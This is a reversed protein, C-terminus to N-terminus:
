AVQRWWEITRNALDDVASAEIIEIGSKSLRDLQRYTADHLRSFERSALGSEKDPVLVSLATKKRPSNSAVLLLDSSAQLLNNEVVLPSKYWASVVAGAATNGLLPVDVEIRHGSEMQLEYRGKQIIRSADLRMKEQMIEFVTTRVKPTSRYRFEVSTQKAHPRGLTVVDAYFEDVVAEASEGSAFLAPGLRITDSLEGPLEAGVELITAEIDHLLHALDNHDIRKDYLCKIRDFTDLMRVEVKGDGFSFMVGVNLFEGADEDLCASIARWHGKVLSGDPQQATIRDRLRAFTNM